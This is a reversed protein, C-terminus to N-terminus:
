QCSVDRRIYRRGTYSDDWHGGELPQHGNQTGTSFLSVILEYSYFGVASLALSANLASIALMSIYISVLYQRLQATWHFTHTLAAAMKGRSLWGGSHIFSHLDSPASVREWDFDSQIAKKKLLRWTPRTLRKNKTTVTFYSLKKVRDNGCVCTQRIDSVLGSSSQRFLLRSLLSKSQSLVEAGNPTRWKPPHNGRPSIAANKICAHKTASHSIWDAHTVIPSLPGTLPGRGPLLPCVRGCHRPVQAQARRGQPLGGRHALPRHDHHGRQLPHAGPGANRHQVDHGRFFRQSINNWFLLGRCFCISM